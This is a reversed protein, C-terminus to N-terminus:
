TKLQHLYRINGTLEKAHFHYRMSDVSFPLPKVTSNADSPEDLYFTKGKREKRASKLFM